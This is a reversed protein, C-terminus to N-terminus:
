VELFKHRALFYAGKVTEIDGQDLNFGKIEHELLKVITQYVLDNKEIFSGRLGVWVEKPQKMKKYAALAQKVLALAENKFLAIADENGKEAAKAIVDRSLSAIETKEHQYVYTKVGHNDSVGIYDMIALSLPSYPINHEHENLIHKLATIVLHYASGEDGLLQGYGGIQEHREGDSYILVSGTGGIILIANSDEEKKIAYLAILADSEISVKAEYKESLYSEYIAKNPLGSYGSIGMQIYLERPKELDNSLEDLLDELHKKAKVQDINFNSYDGCVRKLENGHEDYLVALTKTGGGDIGIIYKNM